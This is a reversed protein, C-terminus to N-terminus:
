ADSRVELRSRLRELARTVHTGVASVSVGMAEATERYSWGCAHVLWVATRQTEVLGRLALVLEPEVDPVGVDVPAPLLPTAARRSWRRTRSQGVRFLYGVPNEMAALREWHEWAYALAEAAADAAGDVGRSSVFARQLRPRVREAFEEFDGVAAM